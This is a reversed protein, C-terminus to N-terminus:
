KGAVLPQVQPQITEPGLVEAPRAIKWGGHDLYCVFLGVAIEPQIVALPFVYRKTKLFTEAGGRVAHSRRISGPVQPIEVVRLEAEPHAQGYLYVSRAVQKPLLGGLDAIRNRKVIGPYYFSVIDAAFNACNANYAGYGHRNPRGNLAAVFREDQETTTALRYGWLRRTYAMGASEWWESNLKANETGDPFIEGLYRRRYQERVGDVLQPTAYELVDDPRDAAYLFELIPTALWDYAGIRDYRSLAVGAPEGPQCMRIRLPGDACVRDLFITTHGVPIYTGFRGFPEGVLVTISARAPRVLLGLLLFLLFAPTHPAAGRAVGDMRRHRLLTAM